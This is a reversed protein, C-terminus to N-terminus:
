SPLARTVSPCCPGPLGPVHSRGEASPSGPCLSQGGLCTPPPCPLLPAHLVSDPATAMCDCVPHRGVELGVCSGARARCGPDQLSASIPMSSGTAPIVEWPVQPTPLLCLLLGGPFHQPPRGLVTGALGWGTEPSGGPHSSGHRLAQPPELRASTGRM